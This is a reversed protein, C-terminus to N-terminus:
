FTEEERFRKITVPTFHDEDVPAGDAMIGGDTHKGGGQHGIEHVVTHEENIRPLPVIIEMERIPEIYIAGTNKSDLAEGKVIEPGPEGPGVKDPDFDNDVEGQWAALLHVVWFDASDTLDKKAMVKSTWGSLFGSSLNRYFTSDIDVFSAPVNEPKIYAEAYATDILTGGSLTYPLPRIHEVTNVDFDDDYIKFTKGVIGAGPTGTIVVDDDFIANDTNSLVPYKTGDIVIFGGEYRNKEDTLRISLNLTSQGVAPVNAQISDITGEDFNKEDGTAPAPGMSDFELWLKRWVTLMDSKAIGSPISDSDVQTQSVSNLANQCCSAFVKYNDGPQRSVVFTVEAVGSSDTVASLVGFSTGGARNDQGASGNSDLPSDDTSPDDVDFVKFYVTQGAITPLIKARIDVKKREDGYIDTPTIRGSFIRKGGNKPCADLPKNGPHQVWEVSDVKPLMTITAQYDSIDISQSDDSDPHDSSKDELLGATELVYSGPESPAPWTAKWTELGNDVATRNFNFLAADADKTVEVRPVDDTVAKLVAGAEKKEGNECIHTDPDKAFFVLDVRVLDDACYAGLDTEEGKKLIFIKEMPSTNKFVTLEIVDPIMRPKGNSQVEDKTPVHGWHCNCAAWAANVIFALVGLFVVSHLSIKMVWGRTLGVM